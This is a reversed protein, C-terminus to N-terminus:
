TGHVTDGALLRRIAEHEPRVLDPDEACVREAETRALDLTRIDAVIDGIRLPIMGHQRTGLLEGPGRLKLDMEAIELGTEAAAFRELRDLITADSSRSILFCYGPEGKRGVRGRLQHLQALGYREAQTVVMYSAEPVDIGSEVVTTAVLLLLRGSRFDDM